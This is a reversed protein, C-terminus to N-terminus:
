RFAIDTIFAAIDDFYFYLLLPISVVLFLISMAIARSIIVAVPTYKEVRHRLMIAIPVCCILALVLTSTPRLIITAATAAGIALGLKKQGLLISLCLALVCNMSKLLQVEYSGNYLGNYAGGGLLGLPKVIAEVLYFATGVSFLITLTKAIKRADVAITNAPIFISLSFVLPSIFASIYSNREDYIVFRLMFAVGTVVFFLLFMVPAARLEITKWRLFYVAMFGIIIAGYLYKTLTNAEFFDTIDLFDLVAVFICLRYIGLNSFLATASKSRGQQRLSGFTGSLTM